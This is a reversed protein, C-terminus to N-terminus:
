TRERLRQYSRQQREYKACEVCGDGTCPVTRRNNTVCGRIPWVGTRWGDARANELSGYTTLLWSTSTTEAHSMEPEDYM